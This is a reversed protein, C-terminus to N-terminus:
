EEADAAATSDQPGPTSNPAPPATTINAAPTSPPPGDASSGGSAILAELKKKIWRERTEEDTLVRAIRSRVDDTYLGMIELEDPGLRYNILLAGIALDNIAEYSFYVQGEDAAAERLATEKAELYGGVMDWLRAYKGVVTGPVWQGADNRRLARPLACDWVQRGDFELWKRAVPIQYSHGDAFEVVQGPLQNQRALESPTPPHDTYYGIQVGDGGHRETWTQQSAVYRSATIDCSSADSLIVGPGGDPGTHVPQLQRREFAYGLRAKDVLEPTIPPREGPLYYLFGPM